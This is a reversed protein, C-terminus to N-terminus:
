KKAEKGRSKNMEVKMGAMPKRKNLKVAAVILKKLAPRKLDKVERLKVHRVSKGTGELLREPDPLATGRIFGFTVHNKGVMFFCMQGNSEFTPIKWPNVSERCGKVTKKMLRRLGEAVKILKPEKKGVYADIFERAVKGEIM